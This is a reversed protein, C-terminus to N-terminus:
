GATPRRAWDRALYLHRSARGADICQLSGNNEDLRNQYSFTLRDRKAEARALALAIAAPELDIGHVRAGTADSIAETIQGTGCGLDLVRSAPG